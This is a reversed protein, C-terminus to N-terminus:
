EAAQAQDAAKTDSAADYTIDDSTEIIDEEEWQKLLTELYATNAEDFYYHRYLSEDNMLMYRITISGHAENQNLTKTTHPLWQAHARMIADKHERKTIDDSTYYAFHQDMLELQISKVESSQPLEAVTGLVSTQVMVRYLASSALVLLLYLIMMRPEWSIKRRAFFRAILYLAFLICITLSILKGEGLILLLQFTVFPILLPYTLPSKTPQSIDESKLRIFYNQANRYCIVALIMWVIMETVLLVLTYDAALSRDFCLHVWANMQWPLSTLAVLIDALTGTYSPGYSEMSYLVENAVDSLFFGISYYVILPLLTYVACILVADLITHCRVIFCTFFTYLCTGLVLFVSLLCLIIMATEMTGYLPANWTADVTVGSYYHNNEFYAYMVPISELIAVAGMYLLGILYHVYFLRKREIPLSLYLDSSSRKMLFRFQYIPLIYALICISIFLSSVIEGVASNIAGGFLDLSAYILISPTIYGMVFLALILATVIALRNNTRMYHKAYAKERDSLLFVELLAKIKM